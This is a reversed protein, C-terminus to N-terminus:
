RRKTKHKQPTDPVDQFFEGHDATAQPPKFYQGGWVIDWKDDTPSREMTATLAWVSRLLRKWTKPTYNHRGLPSPDAPSGTGVDGSLLKLRRSKQVEVEAIPQSAYSEWRWGSSRSDDGALRPALPRRPPLEWVSAPARGFSLDRLLEWESMPIPPLIRTAVAAWARRLRSRALKAVIPKGWISTGKTVQSMDLQKNQLNARPSENFSQRAQSRAFIMLTDLNWKDLWDPERDLQLKALAEKMYEELSDTSAPADPMVLQNLLMRRREGVRGFAMHLLRRMRDRDGLLAARFYRLAHYAQKVPTSIDVSHSHNRFRTKIRGDFFPRAYPPLYSSERLLHRYLHLPKTPRALQLPESVLSLSRSM